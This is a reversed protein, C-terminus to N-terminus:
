IWVLSLRSTTIRATGTWFIWDLNLKPAELTLNKRLRGFLLKLDRFSTRFKGFRKPDRETKQLMVISPGKLIFFNHPINTTGFM